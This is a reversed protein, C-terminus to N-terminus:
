ELTVLEIRSATVNTKDRIDESARVIVEQGVSLDALTIPQEQPIVEEGAPVGFPLVLRVIETSANVRVQVTLDEDIFNSTTPARLIFGGESKEMIVGTYHFLGGTPAEQRSGPLVAVVLIVLAVIAIAGITLAVPSHKENAM